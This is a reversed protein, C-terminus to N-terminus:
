HLTFNHTAFPLGFVRIYAGARANNRLVFSARALCCLSSDTAPVVAVAQPRVTATAISPRRTTCATDTYPRRVERRARKTAGGPRGPAPYAGVPVTAALGKLGPPTSADEVAEIATAQPGTGDGDGVM